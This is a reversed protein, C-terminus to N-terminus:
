VAEDEPLASPDTPIFVIRTREPSVPNTERSNTAYDKGSLPRTAPRPRKRAFKVPRSQSRANKRTRFNGPFNGTRLTTQFAGRPIESDPSIRRQIALLVRCAMVQLIRGAGQALGRLHGQGDGEPDQSVQSSDREAKQGAKRAPGYRNKANQHDFGRSLGSRLRVPWFVELFAM